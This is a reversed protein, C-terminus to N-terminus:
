FIEYQGSGIYFSTLVPTLQTITPVLQTATASRTTINPYTDALSSRILCQIILMYQSVLHYYLHNVVALRM